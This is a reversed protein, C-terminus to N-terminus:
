FFDALFKEHEKHYEKLYPRGLKAIEELADVRTGRIGSTKALDYTKALYLAEVIGKIYLKDGKLIEDFVKEAAARRKEYPFDHEEAFSLALNPTEELLENYHTNSTIRVKTEDGLEKYIYLQLEIDDLKSFLGEASKSLGRIVETRHGMTSIVVM